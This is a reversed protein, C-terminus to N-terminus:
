RARSRLVALTLEEVTELSPEATRAEEVWRAAEARSYGLGAVAAIADAVITDHRM